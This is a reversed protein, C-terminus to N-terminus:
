PMQPALNLVNFSAFDWAPLKVVTSKKLHMLGSGAVAAIM